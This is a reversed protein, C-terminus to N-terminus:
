RGTPALFPEHGLCAAFLPDQDDLVILANGETQTHIEFGFAVLHLHRDVAVLPQLAGGSAAYVEHNQVHHQGPHVTELHHPVQAGLLGGHRDDHEAGTAGLHVLHHPELEAGLIVDGLREAQSLEQRAHFGYQPAVAQAALPHLGHHL